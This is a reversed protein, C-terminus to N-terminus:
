QFRHNYLRTYERYARNVLIVYRSTEPYPINKLDPDTELWKSVTGPGANYAALAINWNSFSKYLKSLYYAGARINIAPDELPGAKIDLERRIEEYTAPLVQMLGVAGKHSVANKRFGSETKIVAYLLYAPVGFEQSAASIEEWYVIPHSWSPFVFLVFVSFALLVIFIKLSLSLTKKTIDAVEAEAM